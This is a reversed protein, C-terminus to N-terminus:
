VHVTGEALFRTYHFAAAIEEIEIKEKEKIDSITRAVKLIKYYRRPSINYKEYISHMFEKCSVDLRCIDKIYKDAINSNSTFPLYKYREKQIERAILIKEKMASSTLDDKIEDSNELERYHIRNIEVAIDIRDALPGSLKSRYSNIETQTCTCKHNDDGLFGCRCPNTAAALIFNSPFIVQNGKRTIHIEKDELPVRLNELAQKPFELMEDMFLVGNHAFSVEGPMPYTGGGILSPITIGPTIHRFPREQIIPTKSSLKGAYSYIRTTEIQEKMTMEPLITIIRKVLMSKGSGPPGILLINHNGAIATMIAEKAAKQGKVDLFDMNADEQKAVSSIEDYELINNELLYEIAEKLTNVPILKVDTENTFLYCESCNERPLLIEKIALDNKEIISMIMPLVGKAPLIRGDLSLEGIIIKNKIDVKINQHSLILGIAIGLDYHSGRKHMYAPSLNVTIKGKPYDYGSNIIARKVREASERVATDALGIITFYPLGNSIDTEIEILEGKMGELAVTKVIRLM